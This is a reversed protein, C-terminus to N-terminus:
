LYILHHAGNGNTHTLPESDSNYTYQDNTLDPYTIKTPIAWATTTISRSEGSRM